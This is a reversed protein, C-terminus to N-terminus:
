SDSERVAELLADPLDIGVSEPICELTVIPLQGRNEFRVSVDRLGRSIDEGNLLVRHGWESKEIVIHGRM